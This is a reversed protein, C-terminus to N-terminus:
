FTLRIFNTKNKQICPIILQDASIQKAGKPMVLVNAAEKVIVQEVSEGTNKITFRVVDTARKIFRNYIFHMRDADVLLTYSSYFAGDDESIQNKRIISEWHMKGQPGVSFILVNDYHYTYSTTYLQYYSNYSTSETIYNSEAILIVGGDSRLIIDEVFYNILETGRNVTREDYFENLFKAKFSETYKNMKGTQMNIKAYVIGASSFSNLESYFGAFVIKRNLYDIEFKLDNVYHKELAIPTISLEISAPSAKLFTFKKDRSTRRDVEFSTLLYVSSDNGMEYGNLLLNVDNFDTAYRQEWQKDFKKTFVKVNLVLKDNEPSPQKYMSLFLNGDKSKRIYFVGKNRKRDFAIEDIKVPDAELKRESTNVRVAYLDNSYNVKNVSTYFVYLSDGIFILDQIEGNPDPLQVPFSWKTDLSNQVYSLEISNDRFRLQGGKTMIPNASKVSYFGLSDQGVVKSYNRKFSKVPNAYDVKQSLGESSFFVLISFFISLRWKM